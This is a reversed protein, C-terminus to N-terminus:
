KSELQLVGSKINTFLTQHQKMIVTGSAASVPITYNLLANVEVSDGQTSQLKVGM